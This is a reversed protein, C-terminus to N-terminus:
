GTATVGHLAVSVLRRLLRAAHEAGDVHLAIGKTWFLVEAVEGTAMDASEHQESVYQELVSRILAVIRIEFPVWLDGARAYTEDLIEGLFADGERTVKIGERLHMRLVPELLSTLREDISGPQAVRSEVLSSITSLKWDVAARFIDDKGTFYQYLTPRSVEAAEAISAMSTHRYGSRAFCALAASLFTLSLCLLM